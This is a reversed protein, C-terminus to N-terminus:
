EERKSYAMRYQRPSLGTIQKFVRNFHSLNNFGCLASLDTIRTDTQKLLTEAHGVRLNSLVEVFTKGTLAKFLYCFYSRSLTSVRAVEEVKIDHTYHEDLYTLARKIAARHEAYLEQVGRSEVEEKFARGLLVLLKLLSAKVSLLFDPPRTDYELKIDELLEEVAAQTRGSLNLRPRVEGTSVLFPEIYAFDFLSGLEMGHTEGLIFDPEFELEVVTFDGESIPELMHPIFPPIVFIDGKNVEFAADNVLHRGRGGAIYNMQIFGHRHLYSTRAAASYTRVFLPLNGNHNDSMNILPINQYEPFDDTLRNM